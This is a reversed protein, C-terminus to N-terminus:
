RKKILQLGKVYVFGDQGESTHNLLDKKDIVFYSIHPSVVSNLDIRSTNLDFAALLKRDSKQYIILTKIQEDRNINKVGKRIM